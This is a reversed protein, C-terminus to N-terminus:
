IYYTGTTSSSSAYCVLPLGAPEPRPHDHQTGPEDSTSDSPLHAPGSVDRASCTM